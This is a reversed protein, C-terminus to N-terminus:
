QKWTKVKKTSLILILGIITLPIIAGILVGFTGMKFIYQLSFGLAVFFMLMIIYAFPTIIDDVIGEYTNQKM